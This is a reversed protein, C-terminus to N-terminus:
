VYVTIRSNKDTIVTTTISPEVPSCKKTLHVGHQFLTKISQNVFVVLVPKCKFKVQCSM